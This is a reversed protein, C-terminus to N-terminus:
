LRAKFSLSQIYQRLIEGTSNGVMYYVPVYKKLHCIDCANWQTLDTVREEITKVPRKLITIAVRVDRAEKDSM